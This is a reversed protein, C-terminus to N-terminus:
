LHKEIKKEQFIENKATKESAFFLNGINKKQIEALWRAGKQHISEPETAWTVDKPSTKHHQHKPNVKGRNIKATQPSTTSKKIEKAKMQKLDKEAEQKQASRIAKKRAHKMKHPSGKM